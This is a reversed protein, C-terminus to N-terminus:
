LEHVNGDYPFTTEMCKRYIQGGSSADKSSRPSAFIVRFFTAVPRRKYAMADNSNINRSPGDIAMPTTARMPKRMTTPNSEESDLFHCILV